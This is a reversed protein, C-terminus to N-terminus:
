NGEVQGDHSPAAKELAMAIVDGVTQRPTPIPMDPDLECESESQNRARVTFSTNVKAGTVTILKHPEQTITKLQPWPNAARPKSSSLM